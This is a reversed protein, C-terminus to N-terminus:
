LMFWVYYMVSIGIINLGAGLLTNLGVMLKKKSKMDSRADMFFTLGLIMLVFGALLLIINYLSTLEM